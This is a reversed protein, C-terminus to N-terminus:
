VKNGNTVSTGSVGSITSASCTPWALLMGTAPITINIKKSHSQNSGDNHFYFDVAGHGGNKSLQFNAAEQATPAFTQDAYLHIKFGVGFGGL